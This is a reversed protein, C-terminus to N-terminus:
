LMIQFWAWSELGTSQLQSAQLIFSLKVQKNSSLRQPKFLSCMQDMDLNLRLMVDLKKMGGDLKFINKRKSKHVWLKSVNSLCPWIYLDLLKSFPCICLILSMPRKISIKEMWSLLFRKTPKNSFKSGAKTLSISTLNSLNIKKLLNKWTMWSNLHIFSNPWKKSMLPANKGKNFM